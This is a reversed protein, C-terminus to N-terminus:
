SICSHLSASRRRRRRRRTSGKSRETLLRVENLSFNTSFFQHENSEVSARQSTPQQQISMKAAQIKGTKAM